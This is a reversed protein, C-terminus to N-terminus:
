IPESFIMCQEKTFILRSPKLVQILKRRRRAHLYEEPFDRLDARQQHKFHTLPAPSDRHTPDGCQNTVKSKAFERSWRMRAICRLM